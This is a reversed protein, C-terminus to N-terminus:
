GQLRALLEAREEDSLGSLAKTAREFPSLKVAAARENPNWTRALEQIEDESKEIHRRCFAQLGIIYSSRAANLVSEEGFKETLGELTEPLDYQVTKAEPHEKTKFSIEM